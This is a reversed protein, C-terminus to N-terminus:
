GAVRILGGAPATGQLLTDSTREPDDAPMLAAGFADLLVQPLGTGFVYRDPRVLVAAAGCAALWAELKTRFPVLRPDNLPVFTVPVPASGRAAELGTGILWAGQGLVDDLRLAREPTVAWPQPFLEGASQNGALRCGEGLSPSRLPPLASGGGARAALMAADRRAAAEPDLLCVVHGM